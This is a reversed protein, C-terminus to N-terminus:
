KQSMSSGIGNQGPSAGSADDDNLFAAPTTPSDIRLGFKEIETTFFRVKRELEDCRKVGSVYRRQFPTLESNLDTFQVCGLRGIDRICEHAADENILFVLKTM